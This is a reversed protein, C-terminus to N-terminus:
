ESVKHVIAQDEPLKNMLIELDDMSVYVPDSVENNGYKADQCWEYFQQRAEMYAEMEQEQIDGEDLEDEHGKNQERYCEMIQQKYYEIIKDASYVLRPKEPNSWELGLIFSDFDERPELRIFNCFDLEENEDVIPKSKMAIIRNNM